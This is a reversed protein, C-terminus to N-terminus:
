HTKPNSSARLQNNTPPFQKQLGSLLNTIQNITALMADNHSDGSSQPTPVTVPSTTSHTPTTKALYALPDVVVSSQEKKKLSKLAHKIAQIDALENRNDEKTFEEDKKNRLPPVVGGEPALDTTQPHPTPGNQISKWILKGHAKGKIYREIHIRWSEYDNGELMPPRNDTGAASSDKDTVM